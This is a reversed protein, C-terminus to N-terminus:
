RRETRIRQEIAHHEEGKKAKKGVTDWTCYVRYKKVLRLTGFVACLWPRPRASFAKGARGASRPRETRVQPMPHLRRLKGGRPPFGSNKYVSVIACARCFQLAYIHIPQLGAPSRTYHPRAGGCPAGNDARRPGGPETGASVSPSLSHIDQDYAAAAHAAPQYM